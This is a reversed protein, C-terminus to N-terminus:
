YVMVWEHACGTKIRTMVSFTREATVSSMAYTFLLMLLKDTEPLSEKSITKKNLMKQITSISTIKKIVPVSQQKLEM